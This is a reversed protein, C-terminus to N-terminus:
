KKIIEKNNLQKQKLEQLEKIEKKSLKKQTEM